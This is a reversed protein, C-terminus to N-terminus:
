SKKRTFFEWIVINMTILSFGFLFDEVPITFLRIGMYYEESYIVIPRWTLYGNVIFSVAAMIIWFVWFRKDSTLKTKLIRDLALSLVVFIVSIITYEKM